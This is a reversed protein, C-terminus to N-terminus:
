DQTFPHAFTHLTRNSSIKLFAFRPSKRKEKQDNTQDSYLQQDASFQGNTLTWRLNCHLIQTETRKSQGIYYRDTM